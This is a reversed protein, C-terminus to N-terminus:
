KTLGTLLEIAYAAYQSLYQGKRRVIVPQRTFHNGKLTFLILNEDFSASSVFQLPLVAAGVGAHALAWATSLGVVEAAVRPHFDAGACLQDFLRRMEQNQGVVVFPLDRCLSFDVEGGAPLGSCLAKPVALVLTDAELPTVELVTDDVPLNVIALDYKGEAAEKRLTDSGTEHLVIQVGPFRDRVKKIIHPIMYMCRFPSIGITLRGAEGSRFQEMSRLLQEERYCLEEAQQIFHEGAATLSLPTTSRDFIKLGLEGELNIIQKSLAPQSINLMDAVQSFNRVKALTIAYQLQRTNM